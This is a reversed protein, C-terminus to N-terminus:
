KQYYKMLDSAIEAIRNKLELPELIEITKGFSLLYYPLYTFIFNSDGWFVISSESREVLLYSLLWHNCLDNISHPSGQIKVVTLMEKDLANPIINNVLFDRSSFNLPAQFTFELQSVKNIRDIRFIRIERRLHCYGVIYWRSNWYVIGYPDIKRTEIEEGNEKNYEMLITHNNIISEDLKEIISMLDSNSVTGIIDFGSLHQNLKKAQEENTCMRIKSTASGLAYDYPYGLKKAFAAAQLLAKKEDLDLILPTKMFNTPLSYGGNHGPESIIPVGSICLADIYRYVTRINIELEEAIESATMKGRANLIWLISLMSDSKAM